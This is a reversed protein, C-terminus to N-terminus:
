SVVAAGGDDGNGSTARTRGKKRSKTASGGGGTQPQAQGHPEEPVSQDGQQDMQVDAEPGQDARPEGMAMEDADEEEEEDEEEVADAVAQQDAGLAGDTDPKSDLAPGGAVPKGAGDRGPEGAAEIAANMRNVYEVEDLEHLDTPKRRLWQMRPGTKALPSVKFGYIRPQYLATDSLGPALNSVNVGNITQIDKSASSTEAAPRQSGQAPETNDLPKTGGVHYDPFTMFFLCGFTTGFFAGDVNQFRSNPPAYVDLCAPCFLKVTEQGPIDSCGVPLVRAGRCYVRPCFGFHGMDYKEQMQQMGPRSTIYRQHILGYLLDASTEIASADESMRLARRDAATRGYNPMGVDSSGSPEEDDLGDDLSGDDDPEVDLIMELAERYMPVQSQLGTLNFDDEIFDESVEAFYEHGIHGCFASIWSEPGQSSTSM